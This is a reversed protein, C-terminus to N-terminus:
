LFIMTDKLCNIHWILDINKIFLALLLLINCWPLFISIKTHLKNSISHTIWNWNTSFLIHWNITIKKLHIGQAKKKDYPIRRYCIRHRHSFGPQKKKDNWLRCSLHRHYLSLGYHNKTASSFNKRLHAYFLETGLECNFSFIPDPEDVKALAVASLCNM